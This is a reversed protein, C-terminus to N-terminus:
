WLGIEETKSCELELLGKKVDLGGGYGTLKHNSGIVRHCPVFISISNNANALAVARVAKPNHIRRALEGYSIITGYPIKMLEEWVTCQFESGTFVVPIDFTKRHGAFYEELEGIAREIVGSTGEEYKANLHWQIRRDITDRRKEAVWDCICLKDGYSGVLMDGMPSQYRTIKITGMNNKQHDYFEKMCLKCPRYGAQLAEELTDYFVINKEQPKAPCGPTCVIKTTRVAVFFKGRYNTDRNRVAKIKEETEMM